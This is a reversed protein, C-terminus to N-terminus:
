KLFSEEFLDLQFDLTIPDNFYFEDANVEIVQANQVAPMNNYTETQQFSNEEGPNTSLVLYDGVYDRLVEASIAHYGEELAVEEVKEPMKLEMEQYLIETGRGFNNGFVYMEKDFVEVVTVSTDEGIEERVEDGTDEARQQFDDVWEQAKEEKNLLKGIEVHQSLYDLKDYTYTVTPAIEQLKDINKIDSYGVILDPELEIIKEISEDSVVEAGELYEDYRPNMDSWSDAGVINADLAAISGTYALSVVWKPENPVEVPGNESEYTRTDEQTEEQSEEQSEGQSQEDSTSDSGASESSDSGCGSLIFTLALLYFPPKKFM